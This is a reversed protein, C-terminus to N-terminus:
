IFLVSTVTNPDAANSTTTLGVAFASANKDNCFPALKSEHSLEVAAPTVAQKAAPNVVTKPPLQIPKAPATPPYETNSRVSVLLEGPVRTIPNAVSVFVAMSLIEAPAVARITLKATFLKASGAPLGSVSDALWAAVNM